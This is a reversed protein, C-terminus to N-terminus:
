VHQSEVGNDDGALGSRRNVEEDTISLHLNAVGFVQSSLTRTLGFGRDPGLQVRRRNSDRGDTYRSFVAHAEGRDAVFPPM